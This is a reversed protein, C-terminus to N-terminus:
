DIRETEMDALPPYAECARQWADKSAVGLRGGADEELWALVADGDDLVAASHQDAEGQWRTWRLVAAVYRGGITMYIRVRVGRTWDSPYQGGHGHEAEGLLWGRFSLDRAGDRTVRVPKPKGLREIERTTM